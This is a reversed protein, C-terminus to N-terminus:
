QQELCGFDFENVRFITNGEDDNRASGYITIKTGKKALNCITIAGSAWAECNLYTPIKVKEGNNNKRYQYTVVEFAVYGVGNLNELVPNETLFGTFTCINM